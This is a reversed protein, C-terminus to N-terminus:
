CIESAFQNLQKYRYSLFCIGHLDDGFRLFSSLKKVSKAIEIYCKRRTFLPILMLRELKM